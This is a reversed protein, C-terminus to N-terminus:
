RQTNAPFLTDLFLAFIQGSNILVDLRRSLCEQPIGTTLCKHASIDNWEYKFINPSSFPRYYIYIKFIVWPLNLVGYCITFHLKKGFNNVVKFLLSNGCFLVMRSTDCVRLEGRVVM